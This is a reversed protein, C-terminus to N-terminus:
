SYWPTLFIAWYHYYCLLYLLSPAAMLLILLAKKVNKNMIFDVVAYIGTLVPSVIMGIGSAMSAAFCSVGVLMIQKSIEKRRNIEFFLYLMTPIIFAAVFAKGQWIRFLMVTSVTHTSTFDFMNFVSLVILFLAVKETDKKLLHIGILAYVVYCMMIFYFPMIRHAMIAPAVNCLKSYLALYMTWPSTLDKRVEGIYIGMEDGTIPSELYMTDTEVAIVAESIFRSDDADEHLFYSPVICQILILAFAVFLLIGNWIQDADSIKISKINHTKERNRVMLAVSFLVLALIIFSWLIVFFTFSKHRAILPLLIIQAAAMMTLFGYIWASLIRKICGETGIAENWLYGIIEPIALFLIVSLLISSIEM